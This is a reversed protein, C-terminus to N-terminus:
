RIRNSSILMYRKDPVVLLVVGDPTLLRDLSHYFGILNPIHEIVHSAICAKFTGWLSQPIASEIDGDHWLFDVDEIQHVPQGDPGYKKVLEDQNAHDLSYSDWGDRKPAMPNFSPGIELIRDQKALSSLLKQRSSIPELVVKAPSGHLPRGDSFKVAVASGALLAIRLDFGVPKAGYIKFLDPRVSDPQFTMRRIGNVELTLEPISEQEGAAWGRIKATTAEDLYGVTM